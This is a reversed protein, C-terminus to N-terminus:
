HPVYTGKANADLILTGKILDLHMGKAAITSSKAQIHVEADTDVLKRTLDIRIRPTTLQMVQAIDTTDRRLLVNGKLYIVDKNIDVSGGEASAIWPLASERLFQIEPFTMMVSNDDEYHEMQTAKLKYYPKGNPNFVTAAFDSVFYDATHRLERPTLPGQPEVSHLLWRTFLAFGLVILLVIIYRLRGM